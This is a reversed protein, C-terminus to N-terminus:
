RPKFSSITYPVKLCRVHYEIVDSPGSIVLELQFPNAGGLKPYDICKSPDIYQMSKPAVSQFVPVLMPYHTCGLILTDVPTNILPKMYNECLQRCADSHTTRREVHEVLGPCAIEIVDYTQDIQQITQSFTRSEITRHTALVAITKTKSVSVASHCAPQVLGYFTQPYQSQFQNLFLSTSTNCGM